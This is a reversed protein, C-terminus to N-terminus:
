LFTQPSVYLGKPGGQFVPSQPSCQLAESAARSIGHQQAASHPQCPPPLRALRWPHLSMESVKGPQGM